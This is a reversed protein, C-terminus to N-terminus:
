GYKKILNNLEEKFSQKKNELEKEKADIQVLVLDVEKKKNEILTKEQKLVLELRRSENLIETEKEVLELAEANKKNIEEKVKHVNAFEAEKEKIKQLEADKEIAWSLKANSIDNLVESLYEKQEELLVKNREVASTISNYETKVEDVQHSVLKLQRKLDLIEKEIKLKEEIKDM